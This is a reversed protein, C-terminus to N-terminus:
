PNQTFRLFASRGLGRLVVKGCCGRVREGRARSCNMKHYGVDSLCHQRATVLGILQGGFGFGFGFYATM